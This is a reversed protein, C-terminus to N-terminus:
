AARRTQVFGSAGPHRALVEPSASDVATQLAALADRIAREQVAPCAKLCDAYLDAKSTWNAFIAGTSSGAARSAVERLSTADFGQEAFLWCAAELVTSRTADTKEARTTM